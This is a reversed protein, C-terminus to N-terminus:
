RGAFPRHRRWLELIRAASGGRAHRRLPRRFPIAPRLLASISWVSILALLAASAALGIAIRKWPAASLPARESLEGTEHEAKLEALDNRVDLASQFRLTLEKALCRTVVKALEKPVTPRHERVPTPDIQIIKSLVGAPTESVFPRAGVLMEYLVIGLSFIDSRHDVPKGQAQEPSMYAATGVIVGEETKAATAAESNPAFGGAPKALGFDLVKVRGDDTVMVNDPKLDRHTIAERHAAAVADTLPIAIDFFQSLPLGGKRLLTTLTKGEVLEMTIFHVGKSEEVSHVTVISPHNLAAIANAEREFRARREQDAAVDPPLVKLAIKRNLKTDEALYVDGMGGSGIKELIRYHALTHGVM